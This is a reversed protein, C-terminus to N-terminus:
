SRIAFSEKLIVSFSHCSNFAHWWSPFLLNDASWCLGVITCAYSRPVHASWSLKLTFATLKRM